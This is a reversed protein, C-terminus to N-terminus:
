DELHSNLGDNLVSFPYAENASASVYTQWGKVSKGAAIKEEYEKLDMNYLMLQYGSQEMRNFERERYADESEKSDAGGSYESGCTGNLTSGPSWAKSRQSDSDDGGTVTSPPRRLRVGPEIFVRTM